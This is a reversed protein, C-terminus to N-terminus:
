SAIDDTRSPPTLNISDDISRLHLDRQPFPIEIGAEKFKKDIATRLQHKTGLRNDMDPLYCRLTLALYSSAFDEFIAFPPPDDMILPHEKAADVML